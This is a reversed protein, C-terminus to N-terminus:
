WSLAKRAADGTLQCTARERRSEVEMPEDALARRRRGAGMFLPRTPKIESRLSILMLNGAAPSFFTARAMQEGSTRTAAAWSKFTTGHKIVGALPAHDSDGQCEESNRECSAREGLHRAAVDDDPYHGSVSGACGGASPRLDPPIGSALACEIVRYRM